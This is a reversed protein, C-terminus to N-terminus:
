KVKNIITKVTIKDEKYVKVRQETYLDIYAGSVDKTVLNDSDDGMVTTGDKFVTLVNRRDDNSTGGGIVFTANPTLKNFQGLVIQNTDNAILGNGLVVNGNDKPAINGKM